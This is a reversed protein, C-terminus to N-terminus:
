GSAGIRTVRVYILEGPEFHGDFDGYIENGSKLSTISSAAGKHSTVEVFVKAGNQIKLIDVVDQPVSFRGPTAAQASKEFRVEFINAM